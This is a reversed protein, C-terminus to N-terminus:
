GYKAMCVYSLAVSRKMRNAMSEPKFMIFFTDVEWYSAKSVGQAYAQAFKSETNLAAVAAVFQSMPHLHPPFGDLMAVVHDPLDARSAWERSVANVQCHGVQNIGGTHPTPFTKM